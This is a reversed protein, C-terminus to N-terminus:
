WWLYLNENFYEISFGGYNTERDIKKQLESATVYSVDRCCLSSLQGSHSSRFKPSIAIPETRRHPSSSNRSGHHVPSQAHPQFLYRVMLELTQNEVSLTLSQLGRFSHMLIHIDQFTCQDALTIEKITSNSLRVRDRKPEPSSLYLISTPITLSRLNILHDLFLILEEFRLQECNIVLKILCDLRMRQSLHGLFSPCNRIDGDALVLRTARPCHITCQNIAESDKICITRALNLGTEYHVSISDM